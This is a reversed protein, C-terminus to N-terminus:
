QTIELLLSQHPQLEVDNRLDITEGSRIDKATHEGLQEALLNVDISQTKDTWNFVAALKNDDGLWLTAIREVQDQKVELCRFGRNPDSLELTKAMRGLNAESAKRLDGSLEIAM